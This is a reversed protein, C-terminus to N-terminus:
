LSVLLVVVMINQPAKAFFLCVWILGLCHTRQREIGKVLEKCEFADTEFHRDLM